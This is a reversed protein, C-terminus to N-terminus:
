TALMWFGKKGAQKLYIDRIRPWDKGFSQSLATTGTAALLDQTAVAPNGARYADVLMRFIAIQKPGGLQLPDKGPIYLTATRRGHTVLEVTVGGLAMQRGGKYATIVSQLDLAATKPDGATHESLKLMVNAGLALPGEQGANLVMGVGASGRARLMADLRLLVKPDALRRAFYCPVSDGELDLVGLSLLDSDLREISQIKLSPRLAGLAITM